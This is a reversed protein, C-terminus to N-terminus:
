RGNRRMYAGPTKRPDLRRPTYRLGEHWAAQSGVRLTGDGGHDSVISSSRYHIATESVFGLVAKQVPKMGSIFPLLTDRVSEILPTTATPMKLGRETFRLLAKGVEGREEEYSDLLEEDAGRAIAALKWGLNAADQIGTNM